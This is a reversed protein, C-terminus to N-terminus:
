LVLFPLCHTRIFSRYNPLSQFTNYHSGLCTDIPRGEASFCICRRWVPLYVSCDSDLTPDKFGLERCPQHVVQSLPIHAEQPIHDLGTRDAMRARSYQLCCQTFGDSINQTTYNPSSGCGGIITLLQCKAANGRRVKSLCSSTPSSPVDKSSLRVTSSSTPGVSGLLSLVAVRSGASDAIV